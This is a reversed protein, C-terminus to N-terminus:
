RGQRPMTKRWWDDIMQKEYPLSEMGGYTGVRERYGPDSLEAEGRAVEKGDDTLLYRLRLQPRDGIGDMIRVSDFSPTGPRERGALDIDLVDIVLDQRPGLGEGLRRFHDAIDDLVQQRQAPTRPLDTFREPAVFHVTVAADAVGQALLLALVLLARKM